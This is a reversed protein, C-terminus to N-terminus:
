AIPRPRHLVNVCVAIVWVWFLAYGVLWFPTTWVIRAAVLCVGAAIACWALWRSLMRTSLLSWGTAIAFSGVAVWGTAFALNGMDFALRALQADVGESARFSALEWGSVGVIAVFVVGSVLAVMARWDDRMLTYFGAFFWLMAVLGLVSLYVGVPFLTEDRTAFFTAVEAASADFPPEGGGVQILAQGGFLLVFAALGSLGITARVTTPARETDITM